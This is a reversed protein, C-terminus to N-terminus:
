RHYDQCWFKNPRCWPVTVTRKQKFDKGEKWLCVVQMTNPKKNQRTDSLFCCCQLHSMDTYFGLVQTLIKLFDAWMKMSVYSWCRSSSSCEMLSAQCGLEMTKPVVAVSSDGRKNKSYKKTKPTCWYQVYLKAPRGCFVFCFVRIELHSLGARWGLLCSLVSSTLISFM